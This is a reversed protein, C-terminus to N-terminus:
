VKNSDEKKEDKTDKTEEKQGLCTFFKAIYLANVIDKARLLYLIESHM